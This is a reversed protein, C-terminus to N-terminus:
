YIKVWNECADEPSIYVFEEDEPNPKTVDNERDITVFEGEALESSPVTKADNKTKTKRETKIKIDAQIDASKIDTEVDASKAAM